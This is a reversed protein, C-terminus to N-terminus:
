VDNLVLMVTKQPLGLQSHLMSFRADKILKAIGNERTM